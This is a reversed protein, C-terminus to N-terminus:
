KAVIALTSSSPIRRKCDSEAERWAAKWARLLSLALSAIYPEPHKRWANVAQGILTERLEVAGVTCSALGKLWAVAAKEAKLASIGGGARLGADLADKAERLADLGPLVERAVVAEWISGPATAGGSKGPPPQESKSGRKGPPPEESKAAELPRKPRQPTGAAAAEGSSVAAPAGAGTAGPQGASGDALAARPAGGGGLAPTSAARPAEASDSSNKLAPVVARRRAVAEPHKDAYLQRAAPSLLVEVCPRPPKGPVERTTLHFQLKSLAFSAKAYVKLQECMQSGLDVDFRAKLKGARIFREEQAPEFSGEIWERILRVTEFLRSEQVECAQTAM